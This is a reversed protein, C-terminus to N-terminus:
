ARAAGASGRRSGGHVSARCRSPLRQRWRRRLARPSRMCASCAGTRHHDVKRHEAGCGRNDRAPQALAFVAATV